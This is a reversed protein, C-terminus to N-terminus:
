TILGHGASCPFLAFKRDHINSNVIRKPAYAVNSIHMDPVYFYLIGVAAYAMIFRISLLAMVALMAPGSILGAINRIEATDLM